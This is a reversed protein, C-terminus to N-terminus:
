AAAPRPATAVAAGRAAAPPQPPQRLLRRPLLRPKASAALRSGSAGPSSCSAPLLPRRLSAQPHPSPFATHCRHCHTEPTPHFAQPYWAGSASDGFASDACAHVSSSHLHIYSWSVSVDRKRTRGQQEKYQQGTTSQAVSCLQWIM